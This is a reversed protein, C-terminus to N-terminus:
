IRLAKKQINFLIETGQQALKIMENFQMVSFTNQEASAQVEILGGASDMVFNADIEANSDENYDLDLIPFGDVIGCSVAAVQNIIPNKYILGNHVLKKIALYLAVYGGTIAATRTGGDAQIVDCDILIQREGVSELDIAARLSRGILRQIEHTRGSQKGNSAERKSRNHTSRPLMGYEATIWGKGRGRLFPPVTEDISATCLVQTNGFKIFCSGEAYANVGIDISITRLENNQRGSNRV